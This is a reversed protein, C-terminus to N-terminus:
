ESQDTQPYGQRMMHIVSMAHLRLLESIDSTSDLEHSIVLGEAGAILYTIMATRRQPPVHDFHAVGIREFRAALMERMQVYIRRPRPDDSRQQLALPLGILIFAPHTRLAEVIQEAIAALEVFINENPDIHWSHNWAEFSDKVVATMLDDKDEFHWYISSAPLGCRRSIEAISTGDYGREIAIEAAAELIKRRSREGDPRRARRKRSTQDESRVAVSARGKDVATMFVMRSM